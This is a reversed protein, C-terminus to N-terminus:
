FHCCQFSSVETMTTTSSFGVEELCKCLSTVLSLDRNNNGCFTHLDKVLLVTAGESSCDDMKAFTKVLGEESEGPRAGRVDDSTIEVVFAEFEDAVARVLSTKGCGSPGTVLASVPLLSRDRSQSNFAVQFVERLQQQQHRLCSVSRKPRSAAIFREKSVIKEITIKTSANVSGFEFGRNNKVRLIRIAFVSKERTKRVFFNSGFVMNQLCDSVLQTPRMVSRPKVLVLIVAVESFYGSKILKIITIPPLPSPPLDLSSSVSEDFDIVDNHLDQRIWATCIYLRNQQNLLVGGGLRLKASKFLNPGVHCKQSNIDEAGCPLARSILSSSM